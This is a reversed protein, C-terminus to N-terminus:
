HPRLFFCFHRFRKCLFNDGFASTCLRTFTLFHSNMRESLLQLVAFTHFKPRSFIWTLFWKSVFRTDALHNSAPIVTNRRHFDSLPQASWGQDIHSRHWRSEPM